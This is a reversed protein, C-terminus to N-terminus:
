VDHRERFFDLGLEDGIVVTMLVISARGLNLDGDHGAADLLKGLVQPGVLVILRAAPTQELENSLAASHKSVQALGIVLAVQANRFAQAQAVLLNQYTPTSPRDGDVRRRPGPNRITAPDM